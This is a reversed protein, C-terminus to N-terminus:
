CDYEAVIDMIFAAMDPYEKVIDMVDAKINGRNEENYTIRKRLSGRRGVLEHRIEVMERPDILAQPQHVWIDANKVRNEKLLEMFREKTDALREDTERMSERERKEILYKDWLYALENSSNVNYKTYAYDIISSANVYRIKVTNQLGIAQNLRKEVRDREHHADNFIVFLITLGVAAFAACLLYGIKVKMGYAAQLFALFLLLLLSIFVVIAVMKKAMSETRLLEMRRFRCSVKEGELNQLDQRVLAKYEENKRLEEIAEPIDDENRGIINYKEEPMRDTRALAREREQGLDILQQAVDKIKSRGEGPLLELEEMDQLRETVTAFELSSRQIEDGSEKIQECCNRIYREMQEPDSLNMYRKDLRLSIDDDWNIEEDDEPSFKKFLNKLWEFM